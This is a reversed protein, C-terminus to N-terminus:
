ESKRQEVRRAKGVPSSLDFESLRFRDSYKSGSSTPTNGGHSFPTYVADRGVHTPTHVTSMLPDPEDGM